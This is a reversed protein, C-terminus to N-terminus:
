DGLRRLDPLYRDVATLDYVRRISTIQEEVAGLGDSIELFEALRIAHGSRLHCDYLLAVRGPAATLSLVEVKAAAAALVWLTALLHQDDAHQSLNSETAVDGALLSRAAEQDGTSWAEIWRRALRAVLDSSRM